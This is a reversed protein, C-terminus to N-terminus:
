ELDSNLSPKDRDVIHRLAQPLSIALKECVLDFQALSIRRYIMSDCSPCIGVLNGGTPTIPEYDAVEGAPVKGTRCKLCYIQGPRLPCRNKTRRAQLFERLERGLILMPRRDDIVPLGEKIWGRVTNKHKGFLAAIEEVTYSRNIKALCPNPHRTAM